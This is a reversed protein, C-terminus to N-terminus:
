VEIFSNQTNSTTTVGNTVTLKVNYFGSVTLYVAVSSGTPTQSYGSPGTILWSYNSNGYTTNTANLTFLNDPCQTADPSSFTADQSFSVLSNLIILLMIGLSRIKMISFDERM